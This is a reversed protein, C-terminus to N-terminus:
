SNLLWTSCCAATYIILLLIGEKRTLTKGKLWFTILFTVISLFLYDIWPNASGIRVPGMLGALGGILSLNFLNSGVINGLLMTTEGKRLLSISAALEPLSTGIALLTFGILEEPVEALQALNKSGFVLSDAGVWLAATSIILAIISLGLPFNATNSTEAGERGFSRQKNGLAHLTIVVLYTLIFGLLLLGAALGIEQNPSFSLFACFVLTVTVLCVRQAFSVADKTPVTGLLLAIGLILGINAINSGIINGLILGPSDSRLASISTFLEPTSTAISVITLGVVVPPIGILFAVNSSHDSLWDGGKILLYFGIVICLCLSLFYLGFSEILWPSIWNDLLEYM